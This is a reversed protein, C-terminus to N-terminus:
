RPSSGSCRGQNAAVEANPMTTEAGSERASVLATDEPVLESVFYDDVARWAAASEYHNVPTSTGTHQTM